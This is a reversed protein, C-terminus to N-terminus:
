GNIGMQRLAWNRWDSFYVLASEGEIRPVPTSTMAMVFEDQWPQPIDGIRIAFPSGNREIIPIPNLLDLPNRNNM